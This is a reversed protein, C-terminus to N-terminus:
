SRGSGATGGRGPAPRAETPARIEDKRSWSFVTEARRPKGDIIPEWAAAARWFAPDDARVSLTAPEGEATTFVFVVENHTLHVEHRVFHSSELELPPGSGLLRKAEEYSGEKLPVVVVLQSM